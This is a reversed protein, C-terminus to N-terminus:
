TGRSMKIHSSLFFFVCVCEGFEIYNKAYMCYFRAHLEGLEFSMLSKIGTLNVRQTQRSM